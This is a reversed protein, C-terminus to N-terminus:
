SLKEVIGLFVEGRDFEISKAEMEFLNSTQPIRKNTLNMALTQGSIGAYPTIPM